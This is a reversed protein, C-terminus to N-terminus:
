SCPNFNGARHSVCLADTVVGLMCPGGGDGGVPHFNRLEGGTLEIGDGM